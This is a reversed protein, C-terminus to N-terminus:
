FVRRAATTAPIADTKSATRVLPRKGQKAQNAEAAALFPLAEAIVSKYHVLLHAEAAQSLDQARDFFVGVARCFEASLNFCERVQPSVRSSKNMYTAISPLREVGAGLGAHGGAVAHSRGDFTVQFTDGAVGSMGVALEWDTTADLQLWQNNSNDNSNNFKVAASFHISRNSCMSTISTPVFFFTGTTDIREVCFAAEIGVARLLAVLLCAKTGCNGQRHELTFSVPVTWNFLVKYKIEDRVWNFAAVAYAQLFANEDNGITCRARAMLQRSLALVLPDTHDCFIDVSVLM